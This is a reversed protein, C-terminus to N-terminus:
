CLPALRAPTIHAIGGSACWEALVALGHDVDPGGGATPGGEGRVRVDAWVTISSVMLSMTITATAPLMVAIATASERNLTLSLRICLAQTGFVALRVSPHTTIGILSQYRGHLQEVGHRAAVGLFGRLFRELLPESLEARGRNLNPKDLRRRDAFRPLLKPPHQILQRM